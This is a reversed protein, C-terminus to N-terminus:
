IINFLNLISSMLLIVAAFLQSLRWWKKTRLQIYKSSLLALILIFPLVLGVSFAFLIAMTNTSNEISSKELLLQGLLPGIGSLSALSLKFGFILLGFFRFFSKWFGKNLFQYKESFLSLFWILFLIQLGDLLLVFNSANSLEVLKDRQLFQSIGFVHISIILSAFIWVNIRSPKTSSELKEFLLSTTILFPFVAASLVVILGTM